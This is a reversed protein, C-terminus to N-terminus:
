GRRQRRRKGEVYLATVAQRVLTSMDLGYMTHLERLMEVTQPDMSYTRAVVARDRLEWPTELQQFVDEITAPTRIVTDTERGAGLWRVRDAGPSGVSVASSTGATAAAASGRGQGPDGATPIAGREEFRREAGTGRDAALDPAAPATGREQGANSETSGAGAPVLRGPRSDPRRVADLFSGVKEGEATRRAAAGTTM